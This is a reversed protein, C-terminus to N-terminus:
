KDLRNMIVRYQNDGGYFFLWLAMEDSDTFIVYGSKGDALTVSTLRMDLASPLETTVSTSDFVKVGNEWRQSNVVTQSCTCRFSDPPLSPLSRALGPPFPCVATDLTFRTAVASTVRSQGDPSTPLHFECLLADWVDPDSAQLMVANITDGRSPYEGVISVTLNTRNAYQRYVTEAASLAVSDTNDRQCSAAVALLLM